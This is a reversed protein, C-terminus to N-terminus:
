AAPTSDPISRQLTVLTISTISKKKLVQLIKKSTNPTFLIDPQYNCCLDM